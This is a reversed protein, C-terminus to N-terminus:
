AYRIRPDLWGYSIDVLLNIILVTVAVVLMGAQVVMYDRNVVASVMMGGLGPLSFVMEVLVAGGVINRVQLGLITVVPILANKLGHRVVMVRQSLGKSRATRIYDQQIVELMASRTQRTLIGIPALSLCIIPLIAQKTSQWFDELPSTYGYMPLLNLKYGILFILVIGVWFSPATFGFNALVSLLSDIWKSRKLACIVGLTIGVVAAVILSVFGLHLTVPLRKALISGVTQNLAFSRGFDGQFIGKIWAYYQYPLSRDLGYLHRYHDVTEQNIGSEFQAFYITVPDSPLLRM